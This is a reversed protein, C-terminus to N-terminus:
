IYIYIYIYIYCIIYVYIYIYIYIYIYKFMTYYYVQAAIVPADCNFEQYFKYISKWLCSDLEMIQFSYYKKLFETKRYVTISKSM